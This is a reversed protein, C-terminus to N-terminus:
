KGRAQRILKKCQNFSPSSLASNYLELAQEEITGSPNQKVIQKALRKM